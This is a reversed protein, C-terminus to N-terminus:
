PFRLWARLGGGVALISPRYVEGVGELVYRSDDRALSLEGWLGLALREFAVGIEGESVLATRWVGRTSPASVGYGTGSVRAVEGQFALQLSLPEISREVLWTGGMRLAMRSLEGGREGDVAHRQAPVFLGGLGLGLKGVASDILPLRLHGQFRPVAEGVRGSELGAGVGILPARPAWTFRWFDSRDEPEAPKQPHPVPPVAPSQALGAPPQSAPAAEAKPAADVPAAAPGRPEGTPGEREGTASVLLVSIAASRLESCTPALLQRELLLEGGDAAVLMELQMAYAGGRPRVEIRVSGPLTREGLEHAVAQNF